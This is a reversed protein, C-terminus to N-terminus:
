FKLVLRVFQSALYGSPETMPRHSIRFRICYEGSQNSEEDWTDPWSVLGPAVAFYVVPSLRITEDSDLRWHCSDLVAIGKDPIPEFLHTFESGNVKDWRYDPAPHALQGFTGIARSADRHMFEHPSAAPDFPGCLEPAIRIDCLEAHCDRTWLQVAVAFADSTPENNRSYTRASVNLLPAEREETAVRQAPPPEHDTYSPILLVSWDSSILILLTDDGYSDHGSQWSSQWSEPLELDDPECYPGGPEATDTDPPCFDSHLCFNCRCPRCHIGFVDTM